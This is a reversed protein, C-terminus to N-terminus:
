GPQVFVQFGTQNSREETEVSPPVFWVRTPLTLFTSVRGAKVVENIAVADQRKPKKPTSVACTM